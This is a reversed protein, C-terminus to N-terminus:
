ADYLVGPHADLVPPALIDWLLSSTSSSSNWCSISPTTAGVGRPDFSIIDQRSTLTAALYMTQLSFTSHSVHNKGVVSQYYPALHKVFWIGSGGPGGPNIFIPGKYNARDTANYRIVAITVLHFPSPDLWDLPM